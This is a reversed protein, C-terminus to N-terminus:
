TRACHAPSAACFATAFWCVACVSAVAASCDEITQRFRRHHQLLGVGGGGYRIDIGAEGLVKGVIRADRYYDDHLANSSSAYVTACRIPQDRMPKEQDMDRM